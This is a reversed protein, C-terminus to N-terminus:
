PVICFVCGGGETDILAQMEWSMGGDVAHRFVIPFPLNLQAGHM